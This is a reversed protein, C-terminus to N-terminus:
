NFERRSIDHRAVWDLLQEPHIPKAVVEFHHGQGEAFDLLEATQPHGSFILLRCDPCEAKLLIAFEIGNM